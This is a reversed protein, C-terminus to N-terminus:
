FGLNDEDYFSMNIPAKKIQIEKTIVPEKEKVIKNKENAKRNRDRIKIRFDLNNKNRHYYSKSANIITQRTKNIKKPKDIIQTSVKLADLQKELDTIKQKLEDM